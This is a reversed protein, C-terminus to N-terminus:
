SSKGFYLFLFFDTTSNLELRTAADCIQQSFFFHSCEDNAESGLCADDLTLQEMAPVHTITLTNLPLHAPPSLRSLQEYKILIEVCMELHLSKFQKM